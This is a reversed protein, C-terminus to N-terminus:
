AVQKLRRRASHGRWQSWLARGRKFLQWAVLAKRALRAIKMGRSRSRRRKGKGGIAKTLLWGAVPLFFHLRPAATKIGFFLLTPWKVQQAFVASEASILSRDLACESILLAKRAKLERIQRVEFM